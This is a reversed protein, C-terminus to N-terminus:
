TRTANFHSAITPLATTVITNDLAALFLVLMLSPVVLWMNNKPIEPADKDSAMWTKEATNRADDHADPTGAHPLDNTPTSSHDLDLTMTAPSKPETSM